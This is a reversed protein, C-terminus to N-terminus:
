NYGIIVELNVFPHFGLGVNRGDIGTYSIVYSYIRQIFSKKNEDTMVQFHTSVAVTIGAYRYLDKSYARLYM